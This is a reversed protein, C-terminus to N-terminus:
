WLTACRRTFIARMSSCARRVFRAEVMDNGENAEIVEVSAGSDLAFAIVLEELWCAEAGAALASCSGGRSSGSSTPTAAAVAARSRLNYM